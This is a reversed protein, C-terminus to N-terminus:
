EKFIHELHSQNRELWGFINDAVVTDSFGWEIAQGFLNNPLELIIERLQKESPSVKFVDVVCDHLRNFNSHDATAILTIKLFSLVSVKDHQLNEPIDLVIQSGIKLEPKKNFVDEYYDM